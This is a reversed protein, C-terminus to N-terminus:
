IMRGELKNNLKDIKNLLQEIYDKLVENQEKLQQIIHQELHQELKQETTPAQDAGYARGCHTVFLAFAVMMVCFLALWKM